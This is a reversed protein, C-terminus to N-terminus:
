PRRWGGSGAPEPEATRPPDPFLRQILVLVEPDGTVALEGRLMAALANARGGALADFVRRDAGLVCDADSESPSVEIHGQSISVLWRSVWGSNLVDFRVTATLKRLTPEVGRRSLQEIFETTEDTM